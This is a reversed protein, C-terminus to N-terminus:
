FELPICALRPGASGNPATALAHIVVAHAGGPPIVFPVNTTAVSLGHPSVEFDLWVETQDDIDAGGTSNYHPGAAAGNGAVCPGTHVHAGFTTGAAAPDLGWVSLRVSTGSGDRAIALAAAKAGDTADTTSPSLDSLRAVNVTVESRNVRAEVPIASGALLTATAALILVLIPIRTRTM